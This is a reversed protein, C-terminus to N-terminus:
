APRDANFWVFGAITLSAGLIVLSPLAARGSVLVLLAELIAPLLFVALMFGVWGRIGPSALKRAAMGLLIGIPVFILSKYIISYALLEYTNIHIFRRMISAGPNLYYTGSRKRGNVFINASSGDYSILVSIPRNPVIMNRIEWRLRTGRSALPSRIHILLDPGEQWVLLDDVGHLKSISLIDGEAPDISQSVFDIRLSLQNTNQLERILGTTPLV